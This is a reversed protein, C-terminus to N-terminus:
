QPVHPFVDIACLPTSNLVTSESLLGLRVVVVLWILDRARVQGFDLIHKSLAIANPEASGGATATNLKNLANKAFGFPSGQKKAGDGSGGTDSGM